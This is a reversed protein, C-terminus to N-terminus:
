QANKTVRSSLGSLLLPLILLMFLLLATYQGLVLIEGLRSAPFQNGFGVTLMTTASFFVAELPRTIAHGNTDTISGSSLYLGAFGLVLEALNIISYILSQRMGSLAWPRSTSKVLVFYLRYGLLDIIRYVIAVATATRFHVATFLSCILIVLWGLLYAERGDKQRNTPLLKVLRSLSVSQLISCFRILGPLLFGDSNSDPHASDSPPECM